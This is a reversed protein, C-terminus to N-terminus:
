SGCYEQISIDICIVYKTSEIKVPKVETCDLLSSLTSQNYFLFINPLPNSIWRLGCATDLPYILQM